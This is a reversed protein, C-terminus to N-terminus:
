EFTVVAVSVHEPKLVYSGHVETGVLFWDFAEQHWRFNYMDSVFGSAHKDVAIIYHLQRGKYNVTLVKKTTKFPDFGLITTPLNGTIRVNNESCCTNLDSFVKLASSSVLSSMVLANDGEACEGQQEGIVTHLDMFLAELIDANLSRDTKSLVIPNDPSGLNVLGLANNGTNEAAAMQLLYAMHSNDWSDEVTSRILDELYNIYMDALDACQLKRLQDTSLKIKFKNMGCVEASESCLNVVTTEPDENGQVSQLISSDTHKGVFWKVKDGCILDGEFEADAMAINHAMNCNVGHIMIKKSVKEPIMHDPVNAGAGAGLIQTAM